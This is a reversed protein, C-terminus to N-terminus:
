PEQAHKKPPPLPNISYWILIVGLLLGAVGVIPAFLDSANFPEVPRTLRAIETAAQRSFLDDPLRARLAKWFETWERALAEFSFDEM